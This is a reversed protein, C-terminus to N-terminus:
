EDVRGPPEPLRCVDRFTSVVAADRYRTGHPAQDPLWGAFSGSRRPSRSGSTRELDTAEPEGRVRRGRGLVERRKRSPSAARLENDEFYTIQGGSPVRRLGTCDDEPKLTQVPSATSSAQPDVSETTDASSVPSSRPKEEGATCSPLFALCVAGAALPTSIPRAPHRSCNRRGLVGRSTLMRARERATLSHSNPWERLVGSSEDSRRM